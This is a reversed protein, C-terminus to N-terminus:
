KEYETSTITQNTAMRAAHTRCDSLLSCKRNALCAANLVSRRLQAPTHIRRGLVRDARVDLALITHIVENCFDVCNFNCVNFTRRSLMDVKGIVLQFEEATVTISFRFEFDRGSDDRLESPLHRLANLMTIGQTPYYGITRSILDNNRCQILQIACHGGDIGKSNVTITNDSCEGPFDIAIVIEHRGMRDYLFQGKLQNVDVTDTGTITALLVSLFLKVTM